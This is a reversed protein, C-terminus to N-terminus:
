PQNRPERLQAAWMGAVLCPQGSACTPKANHTMEFANRILRRVIASMPLQDAAALNELQARTQTDIRINLDETLEPM